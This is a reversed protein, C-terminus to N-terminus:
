KGALKSSIPLYRIDKIIIEATDRTPSNAFNDLYYGLSIKLPTGTKSYVLEDEFQTSIKRNRKVSYNFLNKNEILTSYAIEDETIKISHITPEKKYNYDIVPNKVLAFKHETTYLYYEFHQTEIYVPKGFMSIGAETMGNFNAGQRLVSFQVFSNSDLEEQTTLLRFQFEGFDFLESSELYAGAWNEDQKTILLHLNGDSDVFVNKSSTAYFLENLSTPEKREIVKWRLGSFNIWGDVPYIITDKITEEKTQQQTSEKKCAAFVFVFVLIYFIYKKM